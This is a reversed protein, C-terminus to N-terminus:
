DLSTVKGAGECGLRGELFGAFYGPSSAPTTEVESVCSTHAAKSVLVTCWTDGTAQGMVVWCSESHVTLERWVQGLRAPCLSGAWGPCGDFMPLAQNEPIQM